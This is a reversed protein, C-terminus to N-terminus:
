FTPYDCRFTYTFQTVGGAPLFVPTELVQRDILALYEKADTHRLQTLVGVERITFDAGTNTITFTSVYSYGTEDFFYQGSNRTYTFSTLRNGSLKYDDNSVPANGDGLVIGGYTENKYIVNLAGASSNTLYNGSASGFSGNNCYLSRAIGNFDKYALQTNVKADGLRAHCLAQYFVPLM